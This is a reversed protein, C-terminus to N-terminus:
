SYNRPNRWSSINKLWLELVVLAWLLKGHNQTKEKHEKIYKELADPKIWRRIQANQDLLIEASWYAGKGSLWQDPLSPFHIKKRNIIEPPLWPKAVEQLWAKGSAGFHNAPPINLSYEVIRHDQFPVRAEVGHAMTMRDLRMNHDEPLHEVREFRLVQNLDKFPLVSHDLNDIMPRILDKAEQTYLKEAEEPTMIWLWKIYDTGPTLSKNFWSEFRQYGLFFEDSGDGTIISKIGLERARKAMLYTGVHIPNQLPEDMYPILEMLTQRAGEDTVDVWDFPTGFFNELLKAYSEDVVPNPLFRLSIPQKFPSPDAEKLVVAAVLSSDLGGSVFLGGPVDAQAHEKIVHVLLNRFEEVPNDRELSKKNEGLTWYQKRSMRKGDFIVTEGPLVRKIEPFVTSRGPHFRYKLEHDIAAFDVKPEHPMVAAIAKAESSFIIQDGSQYYYLPKVGLPDRWLQLKGEAPNYVGIAFMGALDRIFSQGKEELLPLLLATDGQMSPPNNLSKRLTQHNVIEGNFVAYNGSPSTQITAHENPAVISLRGMGLAAQRDFIVVDSQDPGRHKTRDLMTSIEGRLQTPDAGNFHIVEHIGCM